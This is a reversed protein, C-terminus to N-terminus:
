YYTKVKFFLNVKYYSIFVFTRLCLNVKYIFALTTVMRSHNCCVRIIAFACVFARIIRHEICIYTNSRFCRWPCLRKEGKGRFPKQKKWDSCDHGLVFFEQSEVWGLNRCLLKKRASIGRCVSLCVSLCIRGRWLWEKGEKVNWSNRGKKGEQIGIAGLRKNPQKFGRQRPMEEPDFRWVRGSEEATWSKTKDLRDAMATM